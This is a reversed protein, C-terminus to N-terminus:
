KDQERRYHSPACGFHKTFAKSFAYVSSYNLRESIESIKLKNEALLIAAIELKKKHYYGFLSESTTKKYLASLYGYSYGMHDALEELTKISFIHTDIYNMMRYCLVENQTVTYTARQSLNKQFGRILYITIQHLISTLLEDRLLGEGDIETIAHSLLMGIREDSFLRCTPAHYEQMLQELASKFDPNESRFAFFDYKLPNAVDAEIRHADCPFSLYIDGRGVSQAIGNTLIRGRGDTIVTLEFLNGHIHTDVIEGKGCWLRGIQFVYTDGFRLPDEMFVKNLHYESKM